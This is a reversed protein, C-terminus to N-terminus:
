MVSCKESSRVEGAALVAPREGETGKDEEGDEEYKKRYEEMAKLYSVPPWQHAEVYSLNDDTLLSFEPKSSFATYNSSIFHLCWASLQPANHLQATLMLAAILLFMLYVEVMNMLALM